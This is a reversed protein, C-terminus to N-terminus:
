SSPAGTRGNAIAVAQTRTRAGLKDLLNSVHYKVTRRSVNIREAIDHNSLGLCLLEFVESERKTLQSSTRNPVFLADAFIDFVGRQIYCCRRSVVEVALRLDASSCDSALLGRVGNRLFYLVDGSRVAATILLFESGATGAGSELFEALHQQHSNGEVIVVLPEPDNALIEVLNHGALVNDISDLEAVAAAIGARFIDSSTCLGVYRHSMM